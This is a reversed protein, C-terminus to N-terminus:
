IFNRIKNTNSIDQVCFDAFQLIHYTAFQKSLDCNLFTHVHIPFRM